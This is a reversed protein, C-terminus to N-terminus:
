ISFMLSDNGQKAKSPSLSESSIKSSSYAGLESGAMNSGTVSLSNDDNEKNEDDDGMDDIDGGRDKKKKKKKKGFSELDVDEGADDDPLAEGIDEM